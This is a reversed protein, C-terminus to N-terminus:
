VAQLRDPAPAAKKQRARRPRPPKPPANRAMGICGGAILALLLGAFSGGFLLAPVMGRGLVSANALNDPWNWSVGSLQAFGAPGPGCAFALGAALLFAVFASRRM